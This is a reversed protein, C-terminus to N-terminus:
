IKYVLLLLMYIYLTYYIIIPDISCDQEVSIRQIATFWTRNIVKEYKEVAKETNKKSKGGRGGGGFFFFLAFISYIQQRSVDTM